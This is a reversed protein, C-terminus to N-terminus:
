GKSSKRQSMKPPSWLPARPPPPDWGLGGGGGKLGGGRELVGRALGGDRTEDWPPWQEGREGVWVCTHLHRAARAGHGGDRLHLILPVLGAALEEAHGVGREAADEPGVLQGREEAVLGDAEAVEVGALDLIQAQVGPLVGEVRPTHIQLMLGWHGEGVERLGGRGVRGLSRVREAAVWSPRTM